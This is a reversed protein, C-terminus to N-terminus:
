QAAAAGVAGLGPPHLPQPPQGAPRAQVPVQLVPILLVPTPPPPPPKHHLQPNSFVNVAPSTCHSVREEMRGLTGGDVRYQVNIGMGAACWKGCCVVGSVHLHGEGGGWRGVEGCCVGCVGAAGGGGPPRRV